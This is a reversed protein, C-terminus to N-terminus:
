LWTKTTSTSLLRRKNYSNVGSIIFPIVTPIKLEVSNSFLFDESFMSKLQKFLNLSFKSFYLPWDHHIDKNSWM